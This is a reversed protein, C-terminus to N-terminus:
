QDYSLPFSQTTPTPAQYQLSQNSLSNSRQPPERCLSFQHLAQQKIFPPQIVQMLPSLKRPEGRIIKITQKKGHPSLQKVSGHYDSANGNCKGNLCFCHTSMNNKICTESRKSLLMRTYTMYFYLVLEIYCSERALGKSRHQFHETCGRVVMTTPRQSKNDGGSVGLKFM